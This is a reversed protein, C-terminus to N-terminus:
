KDAGSLQRYEVPVKYVGATKVGARMGQSEGRDTYVVVADSIEIWSHGASIGLAREQIIWDRLIGRQTYLLHSALPAEDRRLCDRVCARAYRKNLQRQVFAVIRWRSTGAYPSEIVVRRMM